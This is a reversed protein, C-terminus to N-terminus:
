LHPLSRGLMRLRSRTKAYLGTKSIIRPRPPAAPPIRARQLLYEFALLSAASASMWPALASRAIASVFVASSNSLKTPIYNKVRRKSSSLAKRNPLRNSKSSGAM